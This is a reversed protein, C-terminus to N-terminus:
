VPLSCRVGAKVMLSLDPFLWRLILEAQDSVYWGILLLKYSAERSYM